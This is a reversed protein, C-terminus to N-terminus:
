WDKSLEAPATATEGTAVTITYTNNTITAAAASWGDPAPSM